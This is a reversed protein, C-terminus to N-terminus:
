TDVLRLHVTMRDGEALRQAVRVSRKVPLVYSAAKTDPFLSTRWTSDGVSVEVRVSGFGRRTSATLQEIDDAAEHPLTAFYWAAEGGSRWLATSFAFTSM